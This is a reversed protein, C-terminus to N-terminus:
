VESEKISKKKSISFENEGKLTKNEQELVQYNRLIKQYEESIKLEYEKRKNIDIRLKEIENKYSNINDSIYVLIYIM